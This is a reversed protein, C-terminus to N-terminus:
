QERAAAGEGPLARAYSSRAPLRRVLLAYRLLSTPALYISLLIHPNNARLLVLCLPATSSSRLPRPFARSLDPRRLVLNPRVLKPRVLKPRVLKPRFVKPLVAPSAAPARVKTAVIESKNSRRRFALRSPAEVSSNLSSGLVSSASPRECGSPTPASPWLSYKLFSMSSVLL